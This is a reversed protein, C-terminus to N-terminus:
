HIAYMVYCPEQSLPNLHIFRSNKPLMIRGLVQHFGSPDSWFYTPHPKNSRGSVSYSSCLWWLGSQMFIHYNFEYELCSWSRTWARAKTPKAVMNLYWSVGCKGVMYGLRLNLANTLSPVVIIIVFERPPWRACCGNEPGTSSQSTNWSSAISVVFTQVIKEDHQMLQIM